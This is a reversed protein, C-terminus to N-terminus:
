RTRRAPTSPRSEEAPYADADGVVRDFVARYHQMAQRLEETDTTGNARWQQETRMGQRYRDVVDAHDVSLMSMREDDDDTPYGREGMARTVLAHAEAVAEAPADVFREQALRWEDRYRQAVVPDLPTLDLEDHREERERLERVAARRSDSGAVARDYEPGFREQLRRRRRASWVSAAVAIVAVVAAVVVIAVVASTSM